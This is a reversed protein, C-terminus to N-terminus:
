TLSQKKNGFEKDLTYVIARDLPIIIGKDSEDGKSQIIKEIDGYKSVNFTITEPDLDKLKKIGIKGKYKGEDILKYVVEM